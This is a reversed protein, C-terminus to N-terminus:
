LMPNQLRSRSKELTKGMCTRHLQLEQVWTETFAYMCKSLFESCVKKLDYGAIEHLRSAFYKPARFARLIREDAGSVFISSFYCKFVSKHKDNRMKLLSVLTLHLFM